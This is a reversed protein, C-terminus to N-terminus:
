QGVTRVFGFDRTWTQGIVLDTRRHLPWLDCSFGSGALLAVSVDMCVFGGRKNPNQYVDDIQNISWAGATYYTDM